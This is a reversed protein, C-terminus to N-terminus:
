PKRFSKLLQSFTERHKDINSALATLSFHYRIGNEQYLVNLYRATGQGLLGGPSQGTQEVMLGNGSATGVDAPGQAVITLNPTQVLSASLPERSNVPM